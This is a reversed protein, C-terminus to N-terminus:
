TTTVEEPHDIGLHAAFYRITPVLGDRLTVEPRWGLGVEARSIDPRRRTPDDVPLRRHEVRVPRGVVEAVTDALETITFEDPNGLNVPGPEDADLLALIGRM